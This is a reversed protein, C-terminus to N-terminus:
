LSMITSQCEARLENKRTPQKGSQGDQGRLLLLVSEPQRQSTVLVAVDVEERVM